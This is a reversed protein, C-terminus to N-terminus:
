NAHVVSSTQMTVRHISFKEVLKKVGRFRTMKISPEGFVAFRLCVDSVRKKGQLVTPEAVLLFSIDVKLGQFHVKFYPLPGVLIWM